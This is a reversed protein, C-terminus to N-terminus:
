AEIRQAASPVHAALYDNIQKLSLARIDVGNHFARYWEVTLDLADDLELFPRWGLRTTAKSCDLKLYAAEHPHEGGDREWHVNGGWRRTLGDIVTAVSVESSASPGFNWAEAFSNDDAALCECLRLYGMLPDLVHQWPRTAQPNRIRLTVGSTFARVADPVLRDLAWDGGGIVNGARVSAIRATSDAQFFCRRYADTVLEACAKSNSYPDHGGLTDTERYGWVWGVNKYCKDSTVVIVAQVSPTHRVVELLNVTGMVNTAYTDVPEAYSPRVLAQAAMHIIIDPRARAIADHLAPLNRIDGLEHHVDGALGAAVFLSRDSDPPLAFGYVQAGLSRLLLSAWAGKFGTHGTLFVRRKAWFGRDIVM